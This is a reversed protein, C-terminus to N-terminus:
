LFDFNTDAKISFIDNTLVEYDARRFDFLAGEPAQEYKVPLSMVIDIEIAPHATDVVVLAEVAESLHCAPLSLDNVLVLDLIGNNANKVSNIQTLNHFCFGDYLISGPGTLNSGRTDLKLGGDESPLWLMESHNYDGFLLAYDHQSLGSMISDISELHQQILFLDNKYDPPLYLVGVSVDFGDLHVKVWLQELRNSVPSPDICFQLSSSVAVLVGGGRTKRSNLRSRDTRYVTYANGFLQTSSIVDDLWTETLVIVDYEAEAAAVFFSDIKTRLGRTNQYYVRLHSLPDPEPDAATSVSPATEFVPGPCAHRNSDAHSVPSAHHSSGANRRFDAHSSSNLPVEPLSSFTNPAYKGSFPNRFVGDGTEFVPGPRSSTAPQIPVVTNLPNPAEKPSVALTRGPPQYRLTPSRSPTSRHRSSAAHRTPSAHCDSGARSSSNLPVCHGIVCDLRAINTSSSVDFATPQKNSRRQYPNKSTHLVPVVAPRQSSQCSQTSRIRPKRQAQPLHADRHNIVSHHPGHHVAFTAVPILSAVPLPLNKLYRVTILPIM